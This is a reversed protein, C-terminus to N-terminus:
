PPPCRSPSGNGTQSQEGFLTTMCALLSKNLTEEEQDQTHVNEVPGVTEQVAEKADPSDAQNGTKKGDEPSQGLDQARVLAAYRGDKAILESHTGQEVVKGASVLVVNDADKITALKHAIVLVTKNM